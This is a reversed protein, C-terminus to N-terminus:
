GLQGKETEHCVQSMEQLAKFEQLHHQMAKVSGYSPRFIVPPPLLLLTRM